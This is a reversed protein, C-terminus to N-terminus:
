TDEPYVYLLVVVVNVYGVLPLIYVDMDKSEEVPVNVREPL